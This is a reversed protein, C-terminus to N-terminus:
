QLEEQRRLIAKKTEEDPLSIDAVIGWELCTRLRMQLGEIDKLAKDSSVIVHKGQSHLHNFLRYFEEQLIENSIIPQIDDVLLVDVNQYKNRFMTMTFQTSNKVDCKIAESLDKAFSDGTVYLVKKDAHKKIIYHAISQVLHTKGSGNEGYLVLPNYIECPTEAIAVSVAHAFNNSKGVVFTEFTYQPNLVIEEKVETKNHMNDIGKM